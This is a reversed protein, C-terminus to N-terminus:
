EKLKDLQASYYAYGGMPKLTLKTSFNGPALEHSVGVVNYISDVNTNTNLDIFIKQNYSIFPMGITTMESELPFFSFPMYQDPSNMNNLNTVWDKGSGADNLKGSNM